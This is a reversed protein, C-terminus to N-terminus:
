RGSRGYPPRMEKLTGEFFRTGLLNAISHRRAQAIYADLAKDVLEKLTSIQGLRKATNVKEVDLELSTKM